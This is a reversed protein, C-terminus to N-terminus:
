KVEELLRSFDRRIIWGHRDDILVEVAMMIDEYNENQWYEMNSVLFTKGSECFSIPKKLWASLQRCRLPGDYHNIPDSGADWFASNLDAYLIVPEVNRYIKGTEM